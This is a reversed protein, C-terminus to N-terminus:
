GHFEPSSLHFFALVSRLLLVNLHYDSAPLHVTSSLVRERALSLRGSVLLGRLWVSFFAPETLTTSLLELFPSTWTFSFSVPSLDLEFVNVKSM